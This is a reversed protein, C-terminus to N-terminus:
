CDSKRSLTKKWCKRSSRNTACVMQAKHKDKVQLGPHAKPMNKHRCQQSQKKKRQAKLFRHTSSLRTRSGSSSREKVPWFTPTM